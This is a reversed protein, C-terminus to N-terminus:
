GGHDQPHALCHNPWSKFNGSEFDLNDPRNQKLRQPVQCKKRANKGFHPRLVRHADNQGVRRMVDPKNCHM